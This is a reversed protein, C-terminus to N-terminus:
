AQCQTTACINHRVLKQNEESWHMSRRRDSRIVSGANKLHWLPMLANSLSPSSPWINGFQMCCIAPHRTQRPPDCRSRGRGWERFTVLANTLPPTWLVRGKSCPTSVSFPHYSFPVSALPPAATTQYIKCAKVKNMGTAEIMVICRPLYVLNIQRSKDKLIRNSTNM